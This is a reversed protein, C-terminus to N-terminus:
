GVCFKNMSRSDQVVIPSNNQFLRASVSHHLSYFFNLTMIFLSIQYHLSKHHFFPDIWFARPAFVSLALMKPLIILFFKSFFKEIEIYFFEIMLAVM